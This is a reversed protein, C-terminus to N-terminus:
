FYFFLYEFGNCQEARQRGKKIKLIVSPVNGRKRKM